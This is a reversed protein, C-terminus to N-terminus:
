CYKELMGQLDAHEGTKTLTWEIGLKQPCHNDKELVFYHDDSNYKNEYLFIAKFKTQGWQCEVIDGFRLEDTEEKKEMAEMLEEMKEIIEQQNVRVEGKTLVLGNNTCKQWNVWLYM